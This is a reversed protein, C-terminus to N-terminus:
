IYIYERGEIIVKFEKQGNGACWAKYDKWQEKTMGECERLFEDTAEDTPYPGSPGHFYGDGWGDDSM